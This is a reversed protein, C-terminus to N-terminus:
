IEKILCTIKKQGAAHLVDGTGLQNLLKGFLVCFEFLFVFPDKSLVGPSTLCTGIDFLLKLCVLCRSPFLIGFYEVVVVPKKVHRDRLRHVRGTNHCARNGESIVVTREDRVTLFDQLNVHLTHMLDTQDLIVNETQFVDLNDFVSILQQTLGVRLRVFDVPVILSDPLIHQSRGNTDELKFSLERELHKPLVLRVANEVHAKNCRRKTRRARRVAVVKHLVLRM